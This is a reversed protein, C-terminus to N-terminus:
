PLKMGRERLEPVRAGDIRYAHVDTLGDVLYRRLHVTLGWRPAVEFAAIVFGARLKPVLIANNDARHRSYIERFGADAACAVIRPLLATYLGRGRWEPRFVSVTMYYRGFTEQQGWYGGVVEGGHEFLLRHELRAGIAADLDALAASQEAAFLPGLDLGPRDMTGTWMADVVEHWVLADVARITVGGPLPTSLHRVTATTFRARADDASM